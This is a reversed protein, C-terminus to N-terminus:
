WDESKKRNLQKIFKEFHNTVDKMLSDVQALYYYNKTTFDAANKDLWKEVPTYSSSEINIGTITIKAKNDKYYTTVSYRVIGKMTQIGKKDAPNLIKVQHKGAIVGKETDEEKIVGAPNKYYNVFWRKGKKFLSDKTAEFDVVKSYTILKTEEDVPLKPETYETKQSFVLTAPAMLFFTILAKM